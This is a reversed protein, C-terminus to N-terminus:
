QRTQLLMKVLKDRNIIGMSYNMFLDLKDFSNSQINISSSLIKYLRTMYEEKYKTPDCSIDLVTAYRNITDLIESLDTMLWDDGMSRFEVHQEKKNISVFKGWQTYRHMSKKFSTVNTKIIDLFEKLKDISIDHISDEIMGYASKAYSSFERGFKELVYTDGLFLAAKIPDYQDMDLGPISVNVHLGCTSNTEVGNDIAWRSIKKMHTKATEIDMPYSILEIGIGEEDESSVSSDTELIYHADGVKHRQLGHYSTDYKVEIELLSSLEDSIHEFLSEYSYENYSDLDEPWVLRYTDAVDQMTAFNDTVWEVELEHRKDHNTKIDNIFFRQALIHLPNNSDGIADHVLEDVKKVKEDYYMDQQHDTRELFKKYAVIKIYEEKYIDWMSDYKEEDLWEQFDSNLSDTLRDSDSGSFDPSQEFFDIISLIDEAPADDIYSPENYESMDGPYIMEYEIGVLTGLKKAQKELYAPSMRAESITITEIKM